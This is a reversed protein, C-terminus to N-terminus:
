WATIRRCEVFALAILDVLVDIIGIKTLPSANIRHRTLSIATTHACTTTPWATAVLEYYSSYDVENRFRSRAAFFAVDGMSEQAFGSM